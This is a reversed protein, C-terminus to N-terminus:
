DMVDTGVSQEEQFYSNLYYQEYVLRKYRALATKFQAMSLANDALSEFYHDSNTQDTDGKAM